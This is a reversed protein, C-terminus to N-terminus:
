ELHLLCIYSNLKDNNIQMSSTNLMFTENDINFVDQLYNSKVLTSADTIFFYNNYQKDIVPQVNTPVESQDFVLMISNDATINIVFVTNVPVLKNAVEIIYNISTYHVVQQGNLLLNIMPIYENVNDDKLTLFQINNPVNLFINFSKNFHKTFSDLTNSIFTTVLKYYFSKNM